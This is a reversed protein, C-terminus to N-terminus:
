TPRRFPARRRFHGVLVRAFLRSGHENFHVDDYLATTDQPILHAADVCDLRRERCVALLTTNYRKMARYLAGTTFYQRASSRDAGLWGFWLLREEDDSMGDRWASPQTVFVLRVGAAAALDAM